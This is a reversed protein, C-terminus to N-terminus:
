ITLDYKNKLWDIVATDDTSSLVNNYILLSYMRAYLYNLGGEMYGVNLMGWLSTDTGMLYNNTVSYRSGNIFMK